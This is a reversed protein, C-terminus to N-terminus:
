PTLRWRLYAALHSSCALRRSVYGSIFVRISKAGLGRFELSEESGVLWPFFTWQIGRPPGPSVRARALPAVISMHGPSPNLWLVPKGIQVHVIYFCM